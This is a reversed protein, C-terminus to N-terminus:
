VKEQEVENSEKSTREIYVTWQIWGYISLFICIIFILTKFINWWLADDDKQEDAEENINSVRLIKTVEFDSCEQSIKSDISISTSDVAKENKKLDKFFHKQLNIV